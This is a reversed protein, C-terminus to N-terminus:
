VCHVLFANSQIIMSTERRARVQWPSQLDRLGNFVVGRMSAGPLM